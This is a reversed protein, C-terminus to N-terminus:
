ETVPWHTDDKGTVDRSNMLNGDESFFLQYETNGNKVEIVYQIPQLPYELMDIDERQWTAFESGNFGTQVTAPLDNWAISIETLQWTANADFWVDLEKGDVWCDAVFYVGKKEWDVDTASPYKAKLANSISEPVTIGDNKDDDSCASFALVAIFMMALLQIKTKM